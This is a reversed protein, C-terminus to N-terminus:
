TGLLCQLCVSSLLSPRRFLSSLMHVSCCARYERTLIIRVRVYVQVVVVFRKKREINRKKEQRFQHVHICSHIYMYTHSQSVTHTTVLHAFYTPKKKPAKYIHTVTVLHYGDKEKDNDNDTDTDTQIQTQTNTHKHKHRHRHRFKYKYRHTHMHM